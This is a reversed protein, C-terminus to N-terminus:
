AVAGGDAVCGTPHINKQEKISEIRTQKMNTM